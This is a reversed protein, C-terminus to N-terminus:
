EDLKVIIQDRMMNAHTRSIGLHKSVESLRMGDLMCDLLVRERESKINGLKSVVYEVRDSYDKMREYKKERRVVEAGVKDPSGGTAMPEDSYSAVGACEVQDLEKTIRDIEKVLWHYDKIIIYLEHRNYPKKKM